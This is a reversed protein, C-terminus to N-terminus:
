AQNGENAEEKRNKLHEGFDRLPGDANLLVEVERETFDHHTSMFLETNEKKTLSEGKAVKAIVESLNVPDRDVYITVSAEAEPYGQKVAVRRVAREVIKELRETDIEQSFLFIFEELYEDLRQADIKDIIARRDEDRLTEALLSVDKLGAVLRDRTRQRITRARSGKENPTERYFKRLTPTLIAGPEQDPM